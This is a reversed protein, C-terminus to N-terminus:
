EKVEIKVNVKEEYHAVEDPVIGADKLGRIFTVNFGKVGEALKNNASLINCLASTDDIKLSKTTRRSLHYIDQGVIDFQNEETDWGEKIEAMLEDARSKKSAIYERYGKEAEELDEKAREIEARYQLVDPDHELEDEVCKIDEAIAMYEDIKTVDM